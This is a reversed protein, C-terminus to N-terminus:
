FSFIYGPKIDEDIRVKEQDGKIVVPTKESIEEDGANVASSQNHISAPFISEKVMSEIANGDPDHASDSREHELGFMNFWITSHLNELPITASVDIPLRGM